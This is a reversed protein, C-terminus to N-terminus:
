PNAELTFGPAAPPFATFSGASPTIFVVFSGTDQSYLAPQYNNWTGVKTFTPTVPKIARHAFTFYTNTSTAQYGSLVVASGYTEYYRLCRALDDAPHLPVYNAPQSGVVLCANDIYATCNQQFDVVVYLSTIGTALTRTFTLTQYTGDGTHYAGYTYAGDYMGIHVANATSTRVRISLSVTRGRLNLYDEVKQQVQTSGAVVATISAALCSGSGTDQNTSDKSVSMGGSNFLSWRDAAYVGNTMFAGPGRQWWEFGPNVLLNSRAVDPGLEANTISANPVTLPAGLNVGNADARILLSGDNKLVNLARSNTPVLIQVSLAYNTTDNVSTEAVPIGKGSVGNFSDVLQDLNQAQILDGPNVRAFPM